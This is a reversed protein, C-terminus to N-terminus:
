VHDEHKLILDKQKRTLNECALKVVKIQNVNLESTRKPTDLSCSRHSGPTAWNTSYMRKEVFPNDVNVDVDDGSELNTEGLSAVRDNSPEMELHPAVTITHSPSASFLSSPLVNTLQAPNVPAGSIDMVLGTSTVASPCTCLNYCPM